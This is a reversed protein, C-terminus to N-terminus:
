LVRELGVRAQLALREVADKKRELLLSRPKKEEHLAVARM